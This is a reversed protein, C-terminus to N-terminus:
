ADMPKKMTSEYQVFEKHGYSTGKYGLDIQSGHAAACCLRHYCVDQKWGKWDSRWLIHYGVVWNHGAVHM